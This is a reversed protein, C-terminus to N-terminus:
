TCICTCTCTYTCTYTCTCSMCQITAEGRRARLHSLGSEVMMAHTRIRLWNATKWATSRRSRPDLLRRVPREVRSPAPTPMPWQSSFKTRKVHVKQLKGIYQVQIFNYKVKCPIEIKERRCSKIKGFLGNSRLFICQIFINIPQVSAQARLVPVAASEVGFPVQIGPM